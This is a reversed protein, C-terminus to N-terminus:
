ASAAVGGTTGATARVGAEPVWVRKNKPMPSRIMATAMPTKQIRLDRGGDEPLRM